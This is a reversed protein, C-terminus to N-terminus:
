TTSPPLVRVAVIAMDDQVSGGSHQLVSREIAEAVGQASGGDAALVRELGAQDFFRGDADRAEMVGDTVLVLTDGSELEAECSDLVPDDLIGLLSGRLEVPEITADARRVLPSPHGGGALEVRTVDGPSIVGFVVTCFRERDRAATMLLTNLHELVVKPRREALVLARLSHRVRATLAAAEPGSGTADGIAIAWQEDGLYWADYFDGGVDVGDGFPHYIAALEVGPISPLEPPLLSRQLRRSVDIRDHQLQARDLAQATQDALTMVFDREEADFLRARVFSFRLAGLIRGGAVLPVACLSAMTPEVERLEPFARDREERTELWVAEGSRLALAAPLEAHRSEDRLRALAREDYGVAGPLDLRTDAARVLLVGGADAQLAAVGASLVADAVAEPTAAAALARTLESLRAGRHAVRETEVARHLEELLLDEFSRAPPRPDGRASARVQAMIEGVYWRRFVRHEPETELTFLRMARCYEDLQDLAGLYASGAEAADLNLDLVLNTRARGEHAAQLAQQKISLRADAFQETIISLLSALHPPVPATLGEAAGTAILNFERVLNDVHAKAALLFGTPVEGLEVRHLPETGVTTDDDWAALLDELSAGTPAVDGNVEAWVVKGEPLPEVGWRAALRGVLAFGRGTMAQDSAHGLLPVARSRDRVSVRLGDAVPEVAVGTCGDGHLLANTVLESVVVELDDALDSRGLEAARAVV